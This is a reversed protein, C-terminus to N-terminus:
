PLPSPRGRGGECYSRLSTMYYEWARRCMRYFPTDERWGGHSFRLLTSDGDPELQFVIRTGIWEGAGEVCEWEVRSVPELTFVRMANFDGSAFPFENVHGVVPEARAQRTWWGRLGEQETIAQYVRDAPAIIRLTQHIDVM